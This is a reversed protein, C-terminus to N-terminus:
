EISELYQRWGGSFGPRERTAVECLLEFCLVQAKECQRLLKLVAESELSGSAMAVALDSLDERLKRVAERYILLLSDTAEKELEKHCAVCLPAIQNVLVATEAGCRVCAAM